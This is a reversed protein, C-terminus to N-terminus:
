AELLPGLITKTEEEDSKRVQIVAPGVLPNFGTGFQGLAFLNQLGENKVYYRIGAEELM